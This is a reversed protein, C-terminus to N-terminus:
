SGRDPKQKNKKSDEQEWKQERTARVKEVGEMWRLDSEYARRARIDMFIYSLPPTKLFFLILFLSTGTLVSSLLMAFFPKQWPRTHQDVMKEWSRLTKEGQLKLHTMEEDTKRLIPSFMREFDEEVKKLVEQFSKEFLLTIKSEVEQYVNKEGRETFESLIMRVEDLLTKRNREIEHTMGEKLHNLTKDITDHTLKKELEDFNPNPQSM